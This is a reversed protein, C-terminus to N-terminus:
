RASWGHQKAVAAYDEKPHKEDMWGFWTLVGKEVYGVNFDDTDDIRFGEDIAGQKDAYFEGSWYYITEWNELSGIIRGRLCVWGSTSV